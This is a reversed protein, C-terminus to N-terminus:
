RSDGQNGLIYASFADDPDFKPKPNDAPLEVRAPFDVLMRFDFAQEIMKGVEFDYYVVEAYWGDVGSEPNRFPRTMKVTM